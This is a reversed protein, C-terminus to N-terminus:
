PQALDVKLLRNPAVDVTRAPQQGARVEHPGSPLNLVVRGRGRPMGDVIVDSDAPGAIELMGDGPALQAGAPPDLYAPSPTSSPAIAVKYFVGGFVLVALLL